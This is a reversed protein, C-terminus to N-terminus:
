TGYAVTKEGWINGRGALFFYSSQSGLERRAGGLPTLIAYCVPYCQHAHFSGYSEMFSPLVVNQNVSPESGHTHVMARGAAPRHRRRVGVVHYSPPFGCFRRRRLVFLFFGV